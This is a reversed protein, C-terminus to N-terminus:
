KINLMKLVKILESKNNIIGDFMVHPRGITQMICIRHEKEYYLSYYEKKYLNSDSYKLEFGLEEIDSKDLYRVRVENLKIYEEIGDTGEVDEKLPLYGDYIETVFRGEEGINWKFEDYEFGVYFESIEPTYYLNDM